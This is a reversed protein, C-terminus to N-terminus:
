FALRGDKLIEGENMKGVKFIVDGSSDFMRLGTLISDGGVIVM